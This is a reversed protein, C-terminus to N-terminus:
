DENSEGRRDIHDHFRKWGWLFIVMFILYGIIWRM